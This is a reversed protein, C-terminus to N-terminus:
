LIVIMRLLNESEISNTLRRPTLFNCHITEGSSGRDGPEVGAGQHTKQQEKGERKNANEKVKGWRRAM